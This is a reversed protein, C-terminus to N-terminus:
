RFRYSLGFILHNTWPKVEISGGGTLDADMDSYTLKYEMFLSFKKYVDFNIGGFGQFAPGTYQYEETRDGNTEVEVHPVTIGLGLGAYPQLRGLFTDDRAGKPFWRYMGNFTFLNYGHSFSLEQFTNRLLEAGAVPVGARSGTLNVTDGLEAYMKAHTFDVCVGWGTFDEFWYNLRLGYYIPGEFSKDSWSVDSFNLDTGGTQSLKVDTDMTDAVGGYASLVFEACARDTFFLGGFFATFL